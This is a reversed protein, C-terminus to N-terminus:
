KGPITDAKPMTKNDLSQVSDGNQAIANVFQYTGGTALIERAQITYEDLGKLLRNYKEESVGRQMAEEFTIGLYFTDKEFRISKLVEIYQRTAESQQPLVTSQTAPKVAVDESFEYVQSSCAVVCSVMVPILTLLILIKRM